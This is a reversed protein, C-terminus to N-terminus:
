SQGNQVEAKWTAKRKAKEARRCEVCTVELNSIENLGGLRTPVRHILCLKEKSQCRECKNGAEAFKERLVEHNTRYQAAMTNTIINRNIKKKEMSKRFKPRMSLDLNLLCGGSFPEYITGFFYILKAELCLAELETLNKSFFHVIRDLPINKERLERLKIGHGQNRHFDYARQKTGKGIYFPSICNGGVQEPLSYIDAFPDVHAYVYYSTNQTKPIHSFLYSWDQELLPPLYKVRDKVSSNRVSIPLALEEAIDFEYSYDRFDKSQKRVARENQSLTKLQKPSINRRHIEKSILKKLSVLQEIPAHSLSLEEM